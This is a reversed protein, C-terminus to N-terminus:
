GWWGNCREMGGGGMDAMHLVSGCSGRAASCGGQSNCHAPPRARPAGASAPLDTAAACQLHPLETDKGRVERRVCRTAAAAAPM